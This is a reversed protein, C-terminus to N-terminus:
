FSGVAVCACVSARVCVGGAHKSKEGRATGVCTQLDFVSAM